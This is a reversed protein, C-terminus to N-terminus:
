DASDRSSDTTSDTSSDSDTSTEEFLTRVPRFGTHYFKTYPYGGLPRSPRVYCGTQSFVGGRRDKMLGSKPGVPDAVLAETTSLPQGDFFYDTWEYANGLMDYLGWPNPLKQKVPHLTDNSNFCYWAIDNLAPEEECYSLATYHVDGGYTHTMTGAKAAYEWEVVTPLRYGPCQYYAYYLHIDNSCNFNYNANWSSFSDSQELNEPYSAGADGSCSTFDYCIDYGELKSLKNCWVAAEYFNIFTVPTNEDAIKSPNQIDLTKWQSQTIESDSIIFSHTLVIQLPQEAIPARCPTSEPSGFDFNGSPIDIWKIEPQSELGSLVDPPQSMSSSTDHQEQSSTDRFELSDSDQSDTRNSSSSCSCASALCCMTIATAMWFRGAPYQKVYGAYFHQVDPCLYFHMKIHLRQMSLSKNSISM